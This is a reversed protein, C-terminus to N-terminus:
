HFLKMMTNVRHPAHSGGQCVESQLSRFAERYPQPVLEPRVSCVQGFKIFLGRQRLILGLAM